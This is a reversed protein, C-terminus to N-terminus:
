AAAAAVPTVVSQQHGPIDAAVDLARTERSLWVAAVAPIAMATAYLAVSFASGTQHLLLTGVLPAISGGLVSALQYSTSLATYRVRTPFLEAMYAAMAGVIIGHCSLCVILTWMLQAQGVGPSMSFLAYSSAAAAVMGTLLVPRRGVRDSIAAALMIVVVEVASGWLLASLAQKQEFKLFRIAFVLLFTSFLYLFTNESAKVFFACLMERMNHKVADRLPARDVAHAKEALEVFAASEEVRRRTWFGVLVLIASIFFPIRWAWEVFADLGYVGQVAAIVLATLVNALPGAFMCFSTWFGRQEKPMSEAIMLIAGTAEGGVAIGQIFRLTVLLIPAAVGITQYTPLLGIAFTGAGMMLLSIVLMKKRGVRDGAIGFLIGGIPRALFGVTFTGLSLLTSLFPDGSVFFKKDFVLVACAAFAFFDYWELTTGVTSAFMLNIRKRTAGRSVTKSASM